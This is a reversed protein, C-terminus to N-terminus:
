EGGDAAEREHALEMLVQTKTVMENLQDMANQLKAIQKEYLHLSYRCQDETPLYDTVGCGDCPAAEDEECGERHDSYTVLLQFCRPCHVNMEDNVMVVTMQTSEGKYNCAPCTYKM